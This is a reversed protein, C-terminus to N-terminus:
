VEEVVSHIRVVNYGADKVLKTLTEADLSKGDVFWVSIQKASLDVMVNAVEEKKSFVKKIAQACFDCVLGNVEILVSPTEVAQQTVQEAKAGEQANAAPLVTTIGLGLLIAMTTKTVNKM